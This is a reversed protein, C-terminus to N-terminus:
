AAGVTVRRWFDSLFAPDRQAELKRWDPYGARFAAGSMTADKAPYLRGGAALVIEAMRDLLRRTSEGKNPFDLALTAGAMPFSLLGPSPKDGFLKLVMLFSGEGCEATLTLLKRMADPAGAMPMVSQHQFFGRRGYLRNWHAIADLPYFFPDYHVRHHGLVRSRRRYGANFLAITHANLLFGPADFPMGLRPARHVSFGGEEAHRGRIFLGRGAAADKALCDVWAVTYPWGCSEAAVRFFGDLNELALTETEVMASRIPILQLEVWLMVGTLGLGGITAAFLESNETPSLTLVEGSSRALSIARVHRGFTGAAEQNKGHVDNAVAGGLTVFKTGPTVPLFWGHPVVVRLLRDFSLGAEARVTGRERDFSVIRDLLDTVILRGNENLCVDGYSRGLAYCLAPAGASAAARAQDLFAPRGVEHPVQRLRGWSSVAQM